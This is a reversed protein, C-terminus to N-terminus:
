AGATKKVVDVPRVDTIVSRREGFRLVTEIEAEAHLPFPLHEIKRLVSVDCELKDGAYGKSVNDAGGMPPALKTITHVTGMSYNRGSKKSVGESIEIGVIQMRETAM